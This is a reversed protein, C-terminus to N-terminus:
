SGTITVSLTSFDTSEWTAVVTLPPTATSAAIQQGTSKIVQRSVSKEQDTQGNMLSTIQQYVSVECAQKSGTATVTLQM